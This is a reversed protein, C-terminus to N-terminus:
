PSPAPIRMGSPAPVFHNLPGNGAGLGPAAALARQVFDLADEVATELPRGIALGAAIGASLTCGTGHSSRTALRPRRWIRTQRGDFLLDVVQSGPLHGGKMLVARAG